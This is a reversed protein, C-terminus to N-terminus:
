WLWQSHPNPSRLLLIVSRLASDRLLAIEQKHLELLAQQLLFMVNDLYKLGEETHAVAGLLRLAAARVRTDVHKLAEQLTHKIGLHILAPTNNTAAQLLTDAIRDVRTDDVTGHPVALLASMYRALVADNVCATTTM